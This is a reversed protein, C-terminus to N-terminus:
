MPEPVLGDLAQRLGRVIELDTTGWRGDADLGMGSGALHPPAPHAVPAPSRASSHVQICGTKRVLRAVNGPRINGAPLIEIRAGARRILEALRNAGTEADAAQGSTLVRQFGLGILEDLSAFPDHVFDFARHFVSAGPAIRVMERCRERDIETGKLAGFVIGSAGLGIFAEADGLMVDFERPSYDFGGPRPRILVYLPIRGIVDRVRQFTHLSPTLGGVELGSSLELRDAGGIAACRAEDPTSVAIELLLRSLGAGANAEASM